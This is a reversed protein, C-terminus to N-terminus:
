QQKHTATASTTMVSAPYNGPFPSSLASTSVSSLSSSASVLSPLSAVSAADTTPSTPSAFQPSQGTQVSLVKNDQISFSTAEFKVTVQGGGKVSSEDKATLSSDQASVATATSPVAASTIGPPAATTGTTAAPAAGSGISPNSRSNRMIYMQQVQTPTLQARQNSYQQLQQQQAYIEMLSVSSGSSQRQQLSNHQQQQLATDSSPSYGLGQFSPIASSRNPLNSGSTAGNSSPLPGSNSVSRLRSSAWLHQNNSHGLISGSSSSSATSYGSAYKPPLGIGTSSRSRPISGGFESTIPSASPALYPSSSPSSSRKPLSDLLNTTSYNDHARNQGSLSLSRRISSRESTLRHKKISKMSFPSLTTSTKTVLM